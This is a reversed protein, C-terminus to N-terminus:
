FELQKKTTIRHSSIFTINKVVPLDKEEEEAQNKNQIIEKSQLDEQENSATNSMASAPITTSNNAQHQMTVKCQKQQQSQPIVQQPHVTM